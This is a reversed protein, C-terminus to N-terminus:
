KRYYTGSNTSRRAGHSAAAVFPERTGGSTGGHSQGAAQATTKGKDKAKEKKSSIARRSSEDNVVTLNITRGSGNNNNPRIGCGVRKATPLSPLSSHSRRDLQKKL